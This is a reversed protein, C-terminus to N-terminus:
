RHTHMVIKWKIAAIRRTIAYKKKIDRTSLFRIHYQDERMWRSRQCYTRDAFFFVFEIFYYQEIASTRWIQFCIFDVRSAFFHSHWIALTRTDNKWHTLTYKITWKANVASLIVYWKTEEDDEKQGGDEGMESLVARIFDFNNWYIANYLWQFGYLFMWHRSIVIM